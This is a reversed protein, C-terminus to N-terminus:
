ADDTEERPHTRRTVTLRIGAPLRRRLAAMTLQPELEAPVEGKLYLGLVTDPALGDCLRDLAQELGDPDLGAPVLSRAQMPRAPLPVKTIWPAGHRSHARPGAPDPGAVGFELVLAVKEEDVEAFSTREVSGPYIVPCPLPRGTLDHELVQFRHIHGCLVADADAPIGATPVVDPGRRFMFHGPGVVAGEVAQHLCLLRLDAGERGWGAHELLGPLDERIERRYPIGTVAARGWAGEFVVTRATNCIHLRPHSDFLSHPIWAREHNGPVILVPLGARALALYPALAESVLRAPVKSRFLLDGGHIVLDVRGAFAPELAAAQCAWFDAGRRPIDVRPKRPTDFGLHTDALLLVRLTGPNRTM